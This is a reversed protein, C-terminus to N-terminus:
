YFLPNGPDLYHLNATHQAHGASNHVFRPRNHTWISGISVGMGFIVVMRVNGTNEYAGRSAM